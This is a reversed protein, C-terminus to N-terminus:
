GWTHTRDSVRFVHSVVVLVNKTGYNHTDQGVGSFRSRSGDSRNNRKGHTDQGIGSSRSRSGGSYNTEM